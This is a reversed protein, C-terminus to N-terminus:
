FKTEDFGNIKIRLQNILKDLEDVDRKNHRRLLKLSSLNVVIDVALEKTIEIM